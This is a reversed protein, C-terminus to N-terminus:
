VRIKKITEGYQLCKQTIGKGTAGLLMWFLGIVIILGGAHTSTEAVAEGPIQIVGIQATTDPATETIVPDMIPGGIIILLFGFIAQAIRLPKQKLVCKGIIGRLILIIGFIWFCYEVIRETSPALDNGSVSHYFPIDIISTNQSLWFLTILIVGAIIRMWRITTDSPRKAVFQAIKILFPPM